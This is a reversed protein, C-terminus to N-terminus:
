FRIKFKRRLARSILRGVDWPNLQEQYTIRLVWPADSHNHISHRLGATVLVCKGPGGVFSREGVQFTGEGEVVDFLEHLRAHSHEQVVAGPPLVVLEARLEDVAYLAVTQIARSHLNKYSHINLQGTDIM